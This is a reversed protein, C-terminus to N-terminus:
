NSLDPGLGIRRGLRIWRSAHVAALRAELQNLQEQLSLAWRTREDARAEAADLLAVCKALEERTKLIEAELAATREEYAATRLRLESELEAVKAEYAAATELAQAQAEALEEQLQVVRERSQTLEAELDRAWQQADRLEKEHLEVYRRYEEAKEELWQNKLALEAELKSIHQERERLVNGTEPVYVYTPAGTQHSLACVALFFHSTRPDAPKRALLTEAAASGPAAAPQFAIAAAHNQLFMTVSPFVAALAERFEDYDFEHVHFPNPGTLRRTDAYYERNPTSVAFQGGPALLRRAENLLAQWDELHEIVEFATILDFAADPFPLAAASAVAYALNPAHYGFAAARVADPAIDVAAVRSAQRALELSGYGLGCGIDLVRKHRALRSAFAYRAFHENYLDLDARGPILREGTFEPSTYEPL